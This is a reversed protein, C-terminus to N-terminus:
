DNKPPPIKKTDWKGPPPPKYTLKFDVKQVAGEVITVPLEAGTKLAPHYVGVKLAGVPVGDLRYYGGRNSVTHLPHRFVYLDEHVFPVLDDGMRTARRSRSPKVPEGRRSCPAVMAPRAFADIVPAFLLKTTNQIELRQGFTMAITRSEYACGEGITAKAVPTKEPIFFNGGTVM